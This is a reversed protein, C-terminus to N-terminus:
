IFRHQLRAARLLGLLLRLLHHQFPRRLSYQPQRCGLRGAPQYGVQQRRDVAAPLEQIHILALEIRGPIDQPRLDGVAGPCSAPAIIDAVLRGVAPVVQCAPLRALPDIRLRITRQHSRRRAAIIRKHVQRRRESEVVAPRIVDRIDVFIPKDGKTGIQTRIAVVGPQWVSGNWIVRQVRKPIIQVGVIHDASLRSRRVAAVFSVNVLVLHAVPKRDFVEM